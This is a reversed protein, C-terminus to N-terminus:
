SESETSHHTADNTIQDLVSMIQWAADVADRGKHGHQGGVRELAQEETDTTLVGFVIPLDFKLSLQQCSDSVQQCVYQYHDTDGRIVAGLCIISQYNGDHRVLRQVAIGIEVAGPVWVVTSQNLDFQLESLRMLAGELLKQTIEENFRSVVIGLKGKPIFSPDSQIINM